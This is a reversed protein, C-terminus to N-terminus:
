SGTAQPAPLPKRFRLLYNEEFEPVAVEEIFEFGSAEIEGRVTAKDARVHELLWERSVGPIRDFDVVVFEGGPVLAALISALMAEYQEFHHYADCASAHSVSGPALRTSDATSLVVAVNGLKETKIRNEIFEILKPSIDVAYVRGAAGVRESFPALYLGTGSGIDAIRDGPKLDLAALISKRAAFVERSEVEFRALWKEPDLFDRNIDAPTQKAPPPAAAAPPAAAPALLLILFPLLLHM